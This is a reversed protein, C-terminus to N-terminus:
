DRRRGSGFRVVFSAVALLTLIGLLLYLVLAQGDDLVVTRICGALVPSPETSPESSASVDPSATASPTASPSSPSDQPCTPWPQSSSSGASSVPAPIGYSTAACDQGVVVDVPTASPVPSPSTQDQCTWAIVPAGPPQSPAPVPPAASALAPWGVLLVCAAPAIVRWRRPRRWLRPHTVM